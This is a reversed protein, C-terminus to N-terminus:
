NRDKNFQPKVNQLTIEEGEAEPDPFTFKFARPVEALFNTEYKIKGYNNQSISLDM